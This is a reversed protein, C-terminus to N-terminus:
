FGLSYKLLELNIISILILNLGGLKKEEIVGLGNQIM